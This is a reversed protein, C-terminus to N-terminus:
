QGMVISRGVVSPEQTIVHEPYWAPGGFPTEAGEINLVRSSYPTDSFAPKIPQDPGAQSNTAVQREPLTATVCGSLLLALFLYIACIPFPFRMRNKM